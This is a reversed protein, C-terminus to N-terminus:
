VNVRLIPVHDSITLIRTYPRTPPTRHHVHTCKQWSQAFLKSHANVGCCNLRWQTEFTADRAGRRPTPMRAIFSFMVETTSATLAREPESPADCNAREQCIEAAISSATSVYINTALVDFAKFVAFLFSSLSLPPSPPLSPRMPLRLFTKRDREVEM